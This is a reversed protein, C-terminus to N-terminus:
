SKVSRKKMYREKESFICGCYPQRYLEMDKSIQVGEQWGTRFDVYLFSIGEEAAMRECTERILEHKQYPSVLLSTTFCDFGQEKAYRATQRLRLEYCMGCRGNEAQLAQTLFEELTYSDDVIMTLQSRSAFDQATELRKRFEKYPHINPNYFYGTVEHGLERLQKLPFVSCPGCCMHLLMRM